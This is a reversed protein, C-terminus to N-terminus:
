ATGKMVPPPAAPMRPPATRWMLDVEEATLGYARNVLTALEVELGAAERLRAAMPAITREHEERLNRLAAASLPNKRGRARRVEEVLEDSTLAVPDALRRSPETISHEVRLWDVLLSSVSRREDAIRLLAAVSQEAATRTVEDPQAIPLQEM